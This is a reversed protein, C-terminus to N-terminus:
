ARRHDRSLAPREPTKGSYAGVYYFCYQESWSTLDFVAVPRRTGCSIMTPEKRSLRQVSFVLRSLKPVARSAVAAKRRHKVRGLLPQIFRLM